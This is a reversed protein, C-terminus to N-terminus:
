GNNQKPARYLLLTLVLTAAFGIVAAIVAHVMNMPDDPNIFTLVAFLSCPSYVYTYLPHVLGQWVAGIATGLMAALLPTKLPLMTGYMAPESIGTTLLAIGHSIAKERVEGRSKIFVGVCAGVVAMNMIFCLVRFGPEAGLTGLQELALAMFVFHTGTMVMVPLLFGLIVWAAVPAHMRLANLTDSLWNAAASVAPGIALIGLLGTLLLVVAPVFTSQLARPIWRQAGREIWMMAYVLVIPPLVSYAYRAELVPLGLFRVTEKGSLLATLDPYLMLATAALAYVPSCGFHKASAYAVLMPLFYFPASDLHTLLAQTQSGPAFVGAMELLLVVLKIVGCGVMVPIVPGVCASMTAMMALIPNKKSREM